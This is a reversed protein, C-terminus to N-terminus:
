ILKILLPLYNNIFSIIVNLKENLSFSFNFNMTPLPIGDTSSNTFSENRPALLVRRLAIGDITEPSQQLRGSSSLNSIGQL